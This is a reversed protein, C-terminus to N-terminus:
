FHVCDSFLTAPNEDQSRPASQFRHAALLCDSGYRDPLTSAGAGAGSDATGNRCNPRVKQLIQHVQADGPLFGPSSSHFRSSVFICMDPSLRSIMNSTPTTAPHSAPWITCPVPNPNTPSRITPIMPAKM